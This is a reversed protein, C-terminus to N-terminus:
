LSMELQNNLSSKTPKLNQLVSTLEGLSHLHGMVHGQLISLEQSIVYSYGQCLAHHVHLSPTPGWSQLLRQVLGLM